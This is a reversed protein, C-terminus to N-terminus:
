SFPTKPRAQREGDVFVDVREDYFCLLGAIKASELTPFPYSWVVDEHHTRDIVAHWYQATGKYPCETAAPSPELLDMRVDARPLYYRVPLGTEFLLTPQSSEAVVVGDIEVRVHRSSRLVDVRKYPDRAHVYVEEDEEFWRDMKRWVFTVHGDLEGPGDRYSYAGAEIEVRDTSVALVDAKGLPAQRTGERAVLVGEAVDERPFFYTPYYEKEWVLLPHTTDAIMEGGVMVRIRKSATEIHGQRM